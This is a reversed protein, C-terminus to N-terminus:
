AVGRRFMRAAWGLALLACLSVVTFTRALPAGGAAGVFLDRASEVVYAFPNVAAVLQMWGPALTLPLLIGSLLLLPLTFFNITPAFSNEDKLVLALAYSLSAATVGILAVLVLAVAVGPVSARMGMLWAVGLLVLSQALLVVVDRLVRGLVLALRDVPTVSLREIVGARVEAILGFGVFLTGFLAMLVLVGPTFVTLAGGPPFGPSGAIGELLPGFLLLWVIPQTIGIIVWVPNRGTTRLSYIFVLYTDRITRM